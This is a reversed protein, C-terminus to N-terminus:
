QGEVEDTFEKDDHCQAHKYGYDYLGQHPECLKGARQKRQCDVRATVDMPYRATCCGGVILPIFWFRRMSQGIVNSNSISDARSAMLPILFRCM